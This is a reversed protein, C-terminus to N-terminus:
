WLQEIIEAERQQREVASDYVEEARNQDVVV